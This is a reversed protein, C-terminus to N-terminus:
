LRVLMWHGHVSSHWDFSGFFAPHVARPSKVDAPGNLVDAPHNPYEKQIGRLALQAFASAHKRTLALTKKVPPMSPEQPAPPVPLSLMLWPLAVVAPALAWLVPAQKMLDTRRQTIWVPGLSEM